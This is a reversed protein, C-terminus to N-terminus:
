HCSEPTHCEQLASNAEEKKKRKGFYLMPMQCAHEIVLKIELTYSALAGSFLTVYVYFFKIANRIPDSFLIYHM